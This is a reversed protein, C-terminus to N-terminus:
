GMGRISIDSSSGGGTVVVGPIDKLADTVDRYAKKNIEEQSLVSISAAAKKIDQEFGSATVVITELQNLEQTKTEAAYAISFMGSMVSLTLLSKRTIKNSM